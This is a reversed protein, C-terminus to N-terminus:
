ESDNKFKRVKTKFWKELEVKNKIVLSEYQERLEQLTKTLDVSDTVGLEVNVTGM